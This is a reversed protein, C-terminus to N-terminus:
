PIRLLLAHIFGCLHFFFFFSFSFISFYFHISIFVHIFPTDSMIFDLINLFHFICLNHIISNFHFTVHIYLIAACKLMFDLMHAVSILNFLFCTMISPIISYKTKRLNNTAIIQINQVVITFICVLLQLFNIVKSM